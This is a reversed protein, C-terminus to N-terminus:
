TVRFRGVVERLARSRDSLDTAAAANESTGAATTHTAKSILESSQLAAGADYLAQEMVQELLEADQGLAGSEDEVAAAVTAAECLHRNIADVADRVGRVSSVATAVEESGAGMAAVARATEAQVEAVLAGISHAAEDAQEALNGVESAVVMFGRGQEGARAGEVAANLALLNTQAAISSIVTVIGEIAQGRERLAQVRATGEGVVRTAAEMAAHAADLSGGGEAASARAAGLATQAKSASEGMTVLGHTVRGAAEGAKAVREIRREASEHTSNVSSAIEAMAAATEGTRSAMSEALDKVADSSAVGAQIVKQLGLVVKNLEFGMQGLEDRGAGRVQATLDGAGVARATENFKRIPLSIRANNWYALAAATMLGAGLPIIGETLSDTVLVGAVSPVVAAATLSLGVRRRLSGKPVIQGVRLVSHHAGHRKVPVIAERIVEGTNRDYRQVTPTRVSSAAISVADGYQRGGRMANTHVHTFGEPGMLVIYELGPTLERSFLGALTAYAVHEDNGALESECRAALRAALLMPDAQRFPVPM